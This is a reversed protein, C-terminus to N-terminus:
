RVLLVSRTTRYAGARMRVLYLGNPVARGGSDRGDWAMDYRGAPQSGEMLTRIRAGRLDFIEVRSEGPQALDVRVSLSGPSPNPYTRGLQTTRIEPAETQGSYTDDRPPPGAPPPVGSALHETLGSITTVEYGKGSVTQFYLTIPDTMTLPLSRLSLQEKTGLDGVVDMFGDGNMDALRIGTVQILGSSNGILVRGPDVSKGALRLPRSAHGAKLSHDIADPSENGNLAAARPISPIIVNLPKNQAAGDPNSPEDPGSAVSASAKAAHLVRVTTSATATNGSVDSVSYVITYILDQEVECKDDCDRDWHDLFKEECEKQEKRCQERLTSDHIDDCHKDCVAVCQSEGESECDDKCEEEDDDGHDDDAKQCQRARLQFDFDATFFVAGVVDSKTSHNERRCSPTISELQVTAAGCGGTVTPAIHINRLKDDPPWITSPVAVLTLTLTGGSGSLTLTVTATQLCANADKVTITYSGDTLNAFVNSAQFATGDKSYTFPPTGGLATATISGSAPRACTPNTSALTLTLAPPTTLTAPANQTCANADKVTITYAGAALDPFVNSAQFSIGDKSYTLPPTGGSANATISGTAAGFCLPNVSTLTLTIAPPATLTAPATQTCANADRVTITYTGAKLSAFVNSAQFSIGDKSYTLPATGGSANATISGTVGGFCPPNTSTLTLTLAPPDTLTTMATQTSGDADMVRITYTGAPLNPFVNSAQFNIGDTSYRLPPRGGTANATISGTAGGFCLPNTSTLSLTLPPPLQVLISADTVGYRVGLPANNLCDQLTPSPTVSGVPSSNLTVHETRTTGAALTTGLLLNFVVGGNPYALTPCQACKGPNLAAVITVTADGNPTASFIPTPDNAGGGPCAGAATLYPGPLISQGLTQAFKLGSSLAITVQFGKAGNGTGSPPTFQSLTIPVTVAGALMTISTPSAPGIDFTIPSPINVQIPTDTVGYTVPQAANNLCDQLTPSPTVSGQPSSTLTVHQTNNTGVPLTTGLVLNFVVGGNPYAATPCQACKGPNLAAVITVTGDSNQTASFIPTPDNAGGPCAGAATLYPGPQVSQGPNPAFKLGSSIAVTVQFGKAGNGTGSPPSFQSLTIPVTVTGNLAAITLPSGPGIDFSPAVPLGAGTGIGPLDKRPSASAGPVFAALLVWGVLVIWTRDPVLLRPQPTNVPGGRIADGLVSPAPM